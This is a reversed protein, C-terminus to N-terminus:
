IHDLSNGMGDGGIALQAPWAIKRDGIMVPGPGMDQLADLAQEVFRLSEYMENIRIRLRGYADATDWTCVEFDYTEYGCYPEAKRPHHPLGTSRLGPGTMGLAMCRALHLYGAGVLRAKVLPNE